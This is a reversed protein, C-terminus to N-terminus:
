EVVESEYDCDVCVTNGEEDTRHVEVGSRMCTDCLDDHEHIWGLERAQNEVPTYGKNHHGCYDRENLYREVEEPSDLRTLCYLDHSVADFAIRYEDEWTADYLADEEEPTCPAHCSSAFAGRKFASVFEDEESYSAAWAPRQHPRFVLIFM